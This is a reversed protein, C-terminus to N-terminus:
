QIAETRPPEQTVSRPGNLPGYMRRYDDATWRGVLQIEPHLETGTERWVTARALCALELVDRATAGGTNIIFNAHIDSIAAGGRRAGKLGVAEILRGAFDGSPNAFVSGVSLSRPQSATRRAQMDRIRALAQDPDCPQVRLAARVVLAGDIEGRKIRSARYAYGLEAGALRRQQGAGDILDVYELADAMCGGFAGSNNVVAGGVTGPITAAWELGSWGERALVRALRSISTGAEVIVLTDGDDTEVRHGAATYRVVLGDFGEDAILLNSGAGLILVDTGNARADRIAAAVVEADPSALLARSPGGVRLSTFPALQTESAVGATRAARQAAQRELAPLVHEALPGCWSDIDGAGAVIILSGPEAEASVLRALEDVDSVLRADPHAMRALIDASAVALQDQERGRAEYIPTIMAHDAEELAAALEPLMTMTRHRTHPQFVCWLPGGHVDRAAALTLRLATPHHAYDSILWYSASKFRTEFRRRTGLFSEIGRAIEAAKLGIAHCAAVAAACNMAYLRGSLPSNVRMQEGQVSLGLTAGGGQRPLCSVLRVDASPETGFTLTRRNIRLRGLQADDACWVVTGDAPVGDIFQQFSRALREFSGFYDLHDAELNTLVAVRPHMELFRDAFEDAETVLEPGHGLRASAGFNFAYAGGILTPDRGASALVHAILATTTSKGHTGAVAVGQHSALLAGVAQAHTLVPISRRRAEDIEPNSDPVAASRIILDAGDINTASHARAVAIGRSELWNATDANGADSGTVQSGAEALLTALSNMGTGAIGVMHIRRACDLLAARPDAVGATVDPM